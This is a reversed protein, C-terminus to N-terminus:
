SSEGSSIPRATAPQILADLQRPAMCPRSTLLLQDAFGGSRGTCCHVLTSSTMLRLARGRHGASVARGHRHPSQPAPELPVELPVAPSPLEVVVPLPALVPDPLVLELGPILLGLLGFLEL